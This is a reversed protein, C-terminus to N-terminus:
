CMESADFSISIRSLCLINSIRSEIWDRAKWITMHATMVLVFFLLRTVMIHYPVLIHAVGSWVVCTLQRYAETCIRILGRYSVFRFHSYSTVHCVYLIRSILVCVSQKRLPEQVFIVSEFLSSAHRSNVYIITFTRSQRIVLILLSRYLGESHCCDAM